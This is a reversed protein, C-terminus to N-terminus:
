GSNVNLVLQKQEENLVQSETICFSLEVKTSVKNVHQGGKGSSRIAKYKFEKKLRTVSLM